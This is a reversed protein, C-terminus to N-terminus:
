CGTRRKHWAKGFDWTYKVIQGDPDYSKSADFKLAQNPPATLREDTKAVPQLNITVLIGATNTCCVQKNPEEVALVVNYKGPKNYTHFIKMGTGETGDGFSWNYKTHLKDNVISKSGDFLVPENLAKVMDSGANAEPKPQIEVDYKELKARTIANSQEEVLVEGTTSGRSHFLDHAYKM